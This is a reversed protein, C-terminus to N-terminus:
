RTSRRLRQLIRRCQRASLCVGYTRALRESLMKGSWNKARGFGSELPPQTVDHQVGRWQLTSLKRAGYVVRRGEELGDVGRELYRHVWLEVARTSIGLCLGVERCSRGGAVYLLSCVRVVHRAEKCHRLSRALAAHLAGVDPIDLSKM